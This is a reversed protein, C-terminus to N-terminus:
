LSTFFSVKIDDFKLRAILEVIDSSQWLTSKPTAVSLVYKDNSVLIYVYARTGNIKYIYFNDKQILERTMITENFGLGTMKAMAEVSAWIKYFQNLPIRNDNILKNEKATFFNNYSSLDISEKIQIDVGIINTESFAISVYNGSHSISFNIDFLDLYPKDNENNVKIHLDNPDVNALKAIITKVLYRAYVYNRLDKFHKYKSAKIKEGADLLSSHKVVRVKDINTLDATIVFQM